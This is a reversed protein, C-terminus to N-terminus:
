SNDYKKLITLLKFVFEQLLDFIELMNDPTIVGSTKNSKNFLEKTQQNNYKENFSM